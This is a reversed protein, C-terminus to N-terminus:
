KTLLICGHLIFMDKLGDTMRGDDSQMMKVSTLRAFEPYLELTEVGATGYFVSGCEIHDLIRFSDTGAWLRQYSGLSATIILAPRSLFIRSCPGAKRRVWCRSVWALESIVPLRWVPDATVWRIGFATM